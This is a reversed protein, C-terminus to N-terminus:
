NQQKLITPFRSKEAEPVDDAAPADAADATESPTTSPRELASGMTLSSVLNGAERRQWRQRIWPFSAAKM